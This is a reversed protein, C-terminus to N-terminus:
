RQEILRKLENLHTKLQEVQAATLTVGSQTTGTASGTATGSTGTAGAASAAPSQLIAEIAQIHRLVEERDIQSSQATATQGAASQTGATAGTMSGSASSATGGTTPSAAGSASGASSAATGPQQAGGAAQEFKDLHSRFEVLKAKVAPDLGGATGSTGVAGATGSTRAASEDTTEAGILATLNAEVKAYSARWETNTTILENFNSILQTVQTRADGTMQAAAPLQTMESLSNRAATLHQKAAEADVQPTQTTAPPQAGSTGTAGTVPPQASSTPPQTTASGMTGTAAPPQTASGTASTAAGSTAAAASKAGMAAAFATIHTRFETLKNRVEPDLDASAATGSTGATATASGTTSAGTARDDGLIQTLTRDIAAVEVDWRVAARASTQSAAGSVAGQMSEVARELKSFRQKLDNLRAKTQGTVSAMPIGNLAEEAKRLHEQPTAAQETQTSAAPPAQQEAAQALASSPLTLLATAALATTWRATSGKM